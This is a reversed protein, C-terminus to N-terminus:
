PPSPFGASSSSRPVFCSAGPTDGAASFIFLPEPGSDAWLVGAQCASSRIPGWYIFGEATSQYGHPSKGMLLSLRVYALIIFAERIESKTQSRLEAWTVAQAGWDKCRWIYILLCRGLAAPSHIDVLGVSFWPAQWGLPASGRGTRHWGSKGGEWTWTDPSGKCCPHKERCVGKHLRNEGEGSGVISWMQELDGHKKWIM